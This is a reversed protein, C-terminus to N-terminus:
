FNLYRFPNNGGQLVRWVCFWFLAALVLDMWFRNKWKEFIKEAIGTSCIMGALLLGGFERISLYWDRANVNIGPTLGFMRGLYLQLQSLDTIAFFMWSVPIVLWLYFRSFIVSKELDVIRFIWREMIICFGLFIGWLVFNGSIGHWFGTLLWVILLNIATRAEGKRSGGLPVYIYKWFWRGLTIHWRRYFDRVSRAMYPTRFNEPLDFGLMKGLGVAMLSYGHFDFYLHLSFAVAGLWALKWSISEYGTVQLNNWLIGLRDALLVKSAMGLTFLKIGTQFGEATVRRDALGSRVDEYPTIPGSGMKPFMLLYTLFRTLSEERPVEGRYVDALYSIVQFTYFSLGLPMGQRRFKFAALIAANCAVALFFLLYRSNLKRDDGTNKRRNGKSRKRVPELRCGIWFNLCASILIVCLYIPKGQAYFFLSGSLLTMNKYERPTLGYFLFFLPLFYFLFDMSYFNVIVVDKM